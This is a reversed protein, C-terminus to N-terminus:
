QLLDAVSIELNEFNAFTLDNFPLNFQQRLQSMLALYNTLLRAEWPLDLMKAVAKLHPESGELEVFNGYPMEDLVIEVQNLHFTERYKEYVQLPIFGLRQFLQDTKDFDDVTIEVEERVKAESGEQQSSPAKFTVVVATDQRLRLLQQKQLLQEDATDYRVNREYVRPKVPTGGADLVAQRVATLDSVLFKVEVELPAASM